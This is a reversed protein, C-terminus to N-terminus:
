NQSKTDTVSSQITGDKAEFKRYGAASITDFIETIRVSRKGHNRQIRPTAIMLNSNPITILFINGKEGGTSSLLCKFNHRETRLISWYKVSSHYPSQSFLPQKQERIRFM